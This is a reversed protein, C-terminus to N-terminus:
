RQELHLALSASILEGIKSLFETGMAANFREGDDAGLGILGLNAGSVLPIIAASQIREADDAFLFSNQEATAKGCVTNKQELMTKFASLSEDNNSVYRDPSQEIQKEDNSFLKIVAYDAALEDTMTDLVISIVDDLDHAAFLNIALRHRSDALRQNDKAVSMLDCLRDEQVTLQQRLVSVQREILSIASGTQHAIELEALLEPHRQLIDPNERLLSIIELDTALQKERTSQDTDIENDAKTTATKTIKTTANKSNDM